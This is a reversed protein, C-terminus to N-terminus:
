VRINCKCSILSSRLTVLGSLYEYTTAYQAGKAPPSYMAPEANMYMNFVHRLLYRIDAAHTTQLVDAVGSICVFLQHLLRQLHKEEDGMARTSVADGVSPGASLASADLQKSPRSPLQQFLLSPLQENEVRDLAAELAVATRTDPSDANEAPVQRHLWTGTSFTSRRPRRLAPVSGGGSGGGGVGGGPGIGSGSGGGVSAPTKCEFSPTLAQKPEDSPVSLNSSTPALAVDPSSLM